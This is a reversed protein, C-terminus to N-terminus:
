SPRNEKTNGSNTTYGSLHPMDSLFDYFNFKHDLVVRFAFFVYKFLYNLYDTM